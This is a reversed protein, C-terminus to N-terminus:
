GNPDTTDPYATSEAADEPVTLVSGFETLAAALDPYSYKQVANGSKVSQAALEGCAEGLMGYNPEMRPSTYGVHSASFCIAVAINTIGGASPFLCEAPMQYLDTPANKDTGTLSGEGAIMNDDAPYYQVIHCDMGYKFSCVVTPKTNNPALLDHQTLVAAGMMRRAERIYLAHPFGAGHPSDVFEDTPYGFRRTDSHFSEPLSPDNAMWYLMGQHWRVQEAIIETRLAWTGDPYGWSAGPLDFGIFQGQNTQYKGNPLLATKTVISSLGTMERAILLDRLHAYIAPDYGDPKFFPIRETDKALVGRFNYAQTKEDSEGEALDPVRGVPYGTNSTFPGRLIAEAPRFGALPEDYESTSERGYTYPVGAAAMLDGEYSADIFFRARIWGDGSRVAQIRDSSVEVDSPGTIKTNLRVTAGAESILQKAVREAVKPEFRYQPTSQGYEAGIRRFYDLTLGGLAAVVNPIDSKVLGGAVIGGVHGTPELITARLGRKRLRVAAMIGALSAGYIVVDTSTAEPM